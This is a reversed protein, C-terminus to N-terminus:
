EEDEPPWLTIRCEGKCYLAPTYDALKVRTMPKGCKPCTGQSLGADVRRFADEGESKVATAAAETRMETHLAKLAVDLNDAVDTISATRLTGAVRYVTSDDAGVGEAAALERIQDYLNRM